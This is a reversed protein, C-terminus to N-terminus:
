FCYIMKKHGYILRNTAALRKGKSDELAWSVIQSERLHPYNVGEKRTTLTSIICFFRSLVVLKTNYSGIWKHLPDENELKRCKDLYSLVDDKTMDIFKKAIGITKSLEAIIQMTSKKYNPRPNVERKMAIVYDSVTLANEKSLRNRDRLILECFKTTGFGEAAMNIKTELLENDNKSAAQVILPPTLIEAISKNSRRAMVNTNDLPNLLVKYSM